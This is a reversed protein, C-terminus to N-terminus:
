QPIEETKIASVKLSPFQISYKGTLCNEYPECSKILKISDAEHESNSASASVIEGRSGIEAICDFKKNGFNRTLYESMTQSSKRPLGKQLAEKIKRCSSSTSIQPEPPPNKGRLECLKRGKPAPTKTSLESAQCLAVSCGLMIALVKSLHKNM